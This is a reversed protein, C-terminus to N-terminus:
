CSGELCETEECETKDKSGLEVLSIPPLLVYESEVTFRADDIDCWLLGVTTLIIAFFLM